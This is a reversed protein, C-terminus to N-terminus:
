VSAWFKKHPLKQQYHRFLHSSKLRPVEQLYLAPRPTVYINNAIKTKEGSNKNNCGECLQVVYAPAKVLKELKVSESINVFFKAVKGIGHDVDFWDQLVTPPFHMQTTYLINYVMVWRIRNLWILNVSFFNNKMMMFKIKFIKDDKTILIPKGPWIILSPFCIHFNKFANAM